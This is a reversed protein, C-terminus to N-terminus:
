VVGQERLRAVDEAAYGLHDCLVAQTHEGLLPARGARWPTESMIFPAGPYQLPGTAPHDVEVWFGRALFQPDKFLDEVNNVPTCPYGVSQAKETAEKMTRQLLWELILEDAEAKVDPNGFYSEPATFHPDNILDPRDIMRCVRDWLNPQVSFLQVYGDATPYVGHPQLNASAEPRRRQPQNGNYQYTTHAVATRDQSGAMIEMLSLDLHQGQGHLRAGIVAGMTAAAAAKGAYFQEATLALKIPEREPLGTSHMIGGMAYMTIESMKYDRYPGTQGFNTVSTVVLSANTAELTPYDLGYSAMVGPAFSEVVVDAHEVLALFVKRAAATELNLTVSKKNTNLHLFLGSTELDPQDRFFPGVRRAPDGGDPPEIKIVEAGYDALLKTCYPGAVYQSLDLVKLGDLATAM